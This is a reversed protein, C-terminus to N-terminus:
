QVHSMIVLRLVHCPVHAIPVRLFVSKKLVLLARSRVSERANPIDVTSKAPHSVHLAHSNATALPTADTLARIKTEAANRNVYATIWKSTAQMPNQSASSANTKARIAAYWYVGANYQVGISLRISMLTVHLEFKTTAVRFLRRSLCLAVCPQCIRARGVLFGKRWIVVVLCGIKRSSSQQVNQLVSKAVNRPVPILAVMGLDSVLNWANFLMTFFRRTVSRFAHMAVRYVTLAVSIVDEKRHSEHSTM